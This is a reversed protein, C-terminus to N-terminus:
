VLTNIQSHYAVLGPMPDAVIKGTKFGSAAAAEKLIDRFHWAISGTFHVPMEQAEPYQDINRLFFEKFSTFVLYQFATEHIHASLFRTYQALYRNPFSKRYVNELIEAPTVQYTEFFLKILRQEFQNKLMDSILKRGLVAGSGEDGLIYGLPSVNALISKGNYYCSNSGTGMIAVIGEQNQCLSHAAAMLDSEISIRDTHFFQELAVRLEQRKQENAVGAGYFFVSSIQKKDLDFETELTKVIESSQQFFPNIGATQCLMPDGDESVIQWTTKTSGSDAILKMKRYKFHKPCFPLAM